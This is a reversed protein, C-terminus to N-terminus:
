GVTCPYFLAMGDSLPYARAGTARVAVVVVFRILGPVVVPPVPVVAAGFSLSSTMMVCM